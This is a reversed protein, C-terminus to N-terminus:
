FRGHFKLILGYIKKSRSLHHSALDLYFTGLTVGSFPYKQLSSAILVVFPPKDFLGLIRDLSKYRKYHM